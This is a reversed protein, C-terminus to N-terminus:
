AWREPDREGPIHAGHHARALHGYEMYCPRGNPSVALCPMPPTVDPFNDEWWILNEDTPDLHDVWEPDDPWGDIYDVGSPDAFAPALSRWVAPSAEAKVSAAQEAWDEFTYGAGADISYVRVNGHYEEGNVYLIHDCASDPDRMHILEIM